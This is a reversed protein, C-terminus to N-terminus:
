WVRDLQQLRELGSESLFLTQYDHPNHPACVMFLTGSRGTDIDSYDDFAAVFSNELYYREDDVRDTDIASEKDLGEVYGAFYRSLM